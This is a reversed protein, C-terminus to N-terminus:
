LLNQKVTIQEVDSGTDKSEESQKTDAIFREISKNM